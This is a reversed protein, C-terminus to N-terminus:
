RDVQIQRLRNSGLSPNTPYKGCDIRRKVNLSLFHRNDIVSLRSMRSKENLVMVILPPTSILMKQCHFYFYLNRFVFM